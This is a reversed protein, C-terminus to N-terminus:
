VPARGPASLMKILAKSFLDNPKTAIWERRRRAVFGRKNLKNLHRTLAPKSIRCKLVLYERRLAGNLLLSRFIEIRRPHTFATAQRYLIDCPNKHRAFIRHMAAVLQGTWPISPNPGVSYCVSRGRRHSVIIGRANLARLSVSALPIGMKHRAAIDSVALNPNKMLDRIIKL